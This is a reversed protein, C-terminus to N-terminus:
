TAAVRGECRRITTPSQDRELVYREDPTVKPLEPKLEIPMLIQSFRSGNETVSDFAVALEIEEIDRAM